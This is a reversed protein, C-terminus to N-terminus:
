GLYIILAAEAQATTMVMERLSDFEARASDAISSPAILALKGAIRRVEASTFARAPGDGVMVDGISTGGDRIFDLGLAEWGELAILVEDDIMTESSSPFLVSKVRSPDALLMEVTRSSVRRLYASAGV